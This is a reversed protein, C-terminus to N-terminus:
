PGCVSTSCYFGDAGRPCAFAGNICPPGSDPPADGACTCPTNVCLYGGAANPCHYQGGVCRATCQHTAPPTGADHEVLVGADHEGADDHELEGADADVPSPLAGDVREGQGADVRGRLGAEGVQSVGVSGDSRRGSDLLRALQDAHGGAGLEGADNRELEGAGPRTHFSCGVFLTAALAVAVTALQRAKAESGALGLTRLHTRRGVVCGDRAESRLGPVVAVDRVFANCQRALSRGRRAATKTQTQM